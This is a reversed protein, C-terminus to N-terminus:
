ASKGDKSLGHDEFVEEAIEEPENFFGWCSDIEEYEDSNTESIRSLKFGYVRGEIYSSLTKVESLMVVKAKEINETNYAGYEKAIKEKSAFIVGIMGSDWRCGFDKTSLSIGSHDMMFVPLWVNEKNKMVENIEDVSSKKDGFEYRKHIMLFTGLNDWSRPTEADPDLYIDIKLNGRKASYVKEM